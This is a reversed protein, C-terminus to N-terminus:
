KEKHFPPKAVVAQVDNKRIRIAIESGPQLLSSDADVYGLGIGCELLPSQSGSTVTGIENGAKDVIAYGPRPIGKETLKFGVLKRDPGAEKVKALADRGIFDGKDIKTVWGLGAEIPNTGTTIDNGYLCFGSELRLTDRAGLGAPKLGKDNGADMLADWVAGTADADCYIEVGPEGTYGTASIIANESGFFTDPPLEVFHYFKLDDLPVDTIKQVISMAAPGQVAILGVGDSVNRLGAKAANNSVMWAYDSEINSANIVLLYSDVSRRYVLLDDVIGGEPTCMVTYMAKGDYLKAADNSVLNQVFEFAHPGTVEVEGMHSVDFIGAHERVAFHEDIIGSYQVPMDFGAFPMMRAGLQVHRSHLPTRKM